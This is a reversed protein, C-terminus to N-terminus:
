EARNRVESKSSQAEEAGARAVVPAALQQVEALADRLTTKVRVQTQCAIRDKAKDFDGKYRWLGVIMPTDPFRSHVRKCLYRAHAVASPPLASLIVLHADASEVTNVMESALTAVGVNTVCYRRRSLLQGLMINVIEDAADHAPLCVVNVRCGDPLTMPDSADNDAQEDKAADEVAKASERVDILREDDGLEDIINRVADHIFDSRKADLRGRHKDSESLALMPLVVEDYVQDLPMAERYTRVLETAEEADLALLRQYLREHPELAPEDGLLVDLFALQPIYKGIVVLVVTLPTSLLLGIPGWLWTWFVASVLVAITSIGASTGYLWPEMVNNSILELVVFMGVTVGFVGFGKYVALSILLPLAAGLWPGIYPIFRLLACLLGWIVFSPFDDTGSPDRRGVTIGIIWLGLSVAAGYTGNVIAQALLYRSVRSAADDLAQTAITLQSGGFSALRVLRNRLDERALLM